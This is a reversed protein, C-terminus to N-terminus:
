KRNVIKYFVQKGNFAELGLKGFWVVPNSTKEDKGVNLQAYIPIDFLELSAQNIYHHGLAKMRSQIKQLTKEARNIKKLEGNFANLQEAAQKNHYANRCKGSCFKKNRRYPFTKTCDKSSCKSDDLQMDIFM